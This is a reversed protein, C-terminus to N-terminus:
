SILAKLADGLSIVGIPKLDDDVVFVRHVRKSAFVELVEQFSTSLTVHVPMIIECDSLVLFGSLPMFLNGFM